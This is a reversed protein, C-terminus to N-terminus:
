PVVEVLIKRFCVFVCVCKGQTYRRRFKNGLPSYDEMKYPLATEVVIITVRDQVLISQEGCGPPLSLAPPVGPLVNQSCVATAETRQPIPCLCVEVSGFEITTYRGLGGRQSGM